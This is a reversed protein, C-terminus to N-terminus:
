TDILSVWSRFMCLENKKYFNHKKIAVGAKKTKKKKKKLQVYYAGGVNEEMM